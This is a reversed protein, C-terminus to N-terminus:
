LEKEVYSRIEKWIKRPFTYYKESLQFPRNDDYGAWIGLIYNGIKGVTWIDTKYHLEILPPLNTECEWEESNELLLNGKNDYISKYFFAKKTKGNTAFNAYALVFDLINISEKGDLTYNTREFYDWITPINYNRAAGVARNFILSSDKKGRGGVTALVYGTVPDIMIMAEQPGSDKDLDPIYDPNNFLAEAFREIDRNETSYIRLGGSYILNSVDSETAYESKVLDRCVQNYLADEFYSFTGTQEAYKKKQENILDTIDIARHTLYDNESIKKALYMRHLVWNRREMGVKPSRFPCFEEPWKPLGALLAAEGLDIEWINKGFYHRAATQIGYQGDGFYILNLYNELIEDKSLSRELQTALGVEKIKRKLKARYNKEETYWNPFITNKILQQTITSAGQIKKGRSMINRIISRAIGYYDLGHHKYFNKDEVTFLADFFHKPIKELSVWERHAQSGALIRTITDEPGIIHTEFKKPTIDNKSIKTQNM